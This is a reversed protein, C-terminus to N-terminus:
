CGAKGPESEPCLGPGPPCEKGRRVESGSRLLCPLLKWSRLQSQANLYKQPATPQSGARPPGLALALARGGEEAKEGGVRIRPAERGSGWIEGGRPRDSPM